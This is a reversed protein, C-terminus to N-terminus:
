AAVAARSASRDTDVCGSHLCGSLIAGIAEDEKLFADHGYISRLVCLTPAPSCADTGLREVLEQLDALPVLRDEQVGVVTVPVRVLAPDLAQLDISESLRLFATPSTAEAYSAGCHDLYDEAGVRVRGNVIRAPRAFRRAFEEPTRYGLMALQRALAVGHRVDCQLEGLAVARRQLARQASAHPDPRHGGSIAVLHQLRHGHRAAFHLGVMAGYSCGIFAELRGIALQDLVTAIADAQDAPDIPVDLTGDSGLWDFSVICHRRPDLARELAAQRDWWGAEPFAGSRAVHRGASIGGVVFVVPLASSGLVEYRLRAQHRGAHLLNLEVSVEGRWAQASITTAGDTSHRPDITSAPSVSALRNLAARNM